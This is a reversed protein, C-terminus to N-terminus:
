QTKGSAVQKGNETNNPGEFSAAVCVYVMVSETAILRKQMISRDERMDIQCRDWATM